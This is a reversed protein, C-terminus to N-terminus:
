MNQNSLTPERRCVQREVFTFPSPEVFRTAASAGLLKASLAIFRIMVYLSGDFFYAPRLPLVGDLCFRKM